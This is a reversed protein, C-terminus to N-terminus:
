TCPSSLSAVPPSSGCRVAASELIRRTEHKSFRLSKQQIMTLEKRRWPYKMVGGVAHGEGLLLHGIEHAIVHAVLLSLDLGEGAALRSIPELFVGLFRGLRGPGGVFALGFTHSPAPWRGSDSESFIRVAISASDFPVDCAPLGIAQCVLSELNLGTKKFIQRVEALSTELVPPPLGARDYVFLRLPRGYCASGDDAALFPNGALLLLFWARHMDSEPNSEPPLPSALEM